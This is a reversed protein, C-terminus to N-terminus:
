ATTLPLFPRPSVEVPLRHQGVVGGALLKTGPKALERKVYALAIGRNLTHSFGSSTIAGVEAEDGDGDTRSTLPTGPGPPTEGTEFALGVLRRAVRGQGRHLIRIIVEQGVYCGKSQSIARDEIGAELPITDANLDAPFVPRGSEIRLLDFTSMDLPVAGERILAGELAPMITAAAYLTIGVEGIEHSRVVIVPTNEFRAVRHHHEPAATLIRDWMATQDAGADPELVRAAVGVAAPGHLGCAGLTTTRDEIQVDETFVFEQLRDVLMSTVSPHVDLLLEQGLDIVRMDAIMRGQPTLYATYCGEGARLAEIDNTLLGQLYSVRDAGVVGIRGYASFDILAADSRAAVYGPPMSGQGHSREATM